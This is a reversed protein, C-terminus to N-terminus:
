REYREYSESGSTLEKENEAHKSLEIKKASRLACHLGVM